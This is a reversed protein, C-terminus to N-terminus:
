RGSVHAAGRRSVSLDLIAHCISLHTLEVHGYSCSPVYFNVDGLARLPNAPAFGSLTVIGCRSAGAAAVGRLINPSRGSGSIAILLDGPQAMMEITKEFVHEYGYDNSLCTLLAGDNFATARIGGNKWYDIAMHSAITASGGNGIFMLKRGDAHTRLALAIVRAIAEEFPIPEGQATTVEVVHYLNGLRRFYSDVENVAGDTATSESTM